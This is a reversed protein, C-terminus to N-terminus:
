RVKGNRNFGEGIYRIAEEMSYWISRRLGTEHALRNEILKLYRSKVSGTRRCIDVVETVSAHIKTNDLSTNEGTYCHTYVCERNFAITSRGSLMMLWLMYDDSGSNQLPNELWEDPIAKRRILCQGPSIIRSNFVAYFWLSKVTLQMLFFRYLIRNREAEQAFGNAVVMDVRRKELSELQSIIYRDAIEDDQDLMLIYDGDCSRIGEIRSAHIGMNVPNNICKVILKDESAIDEVIDQPYDNVFILEVRTNIYKGKLSAINAQCMKIINQIYKKGKYLPVIVSIKM